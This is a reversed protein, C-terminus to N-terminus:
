FRLQRQQILKLIRETAKPLADHVFPQPRYKVVKNFAKNTITGTQPSVDYRVTLKGAGGENLLQPITKGGLPNVWVRAGPYGINAGNRVRPVKPTNSYKIVGVTVTSTKENVEFRVHRMGQDGSAHHKPYKSRRAKRLTGDKNRKGIGSAARPRIKRQITKRAYAGTKYLIIQNHKDLKRRAEAPSIFKKTVLKAKIM